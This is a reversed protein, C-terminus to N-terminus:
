ATRLSKERKVERLACARRELDGILLKINRTNSRFAFDVVDGVVPVAGGALDVGLNMAMRVLTWRRAGLRGAEFILWAGFAASVVDGVVPVLGLLGDVGFRRGFLSFQRELLQELRKLRAVGDATSAM